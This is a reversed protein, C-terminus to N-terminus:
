FPGIFLSNGLIANKKPVFSFGCFNGSAPQLGDFFVTELEITDFHHVGGAAAARKQDLGQFVQFLFVLPGNFFRHANGSLRFQPIHVLDDIVNQGIIKVANIDVRFGNFYRFQGQPHVRCRRPFGKRVQVVVDSAAVAQHTRIEILILLLIQEILRLFFLDVGKVPFGGKRCDPIGTSKVAHDAVRGVHLKLM